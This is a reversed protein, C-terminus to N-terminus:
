LCLGIDERAEGDGDAFVVRCFGQTQGFRTRCDQADPRCYGTCVPLSEGGTNFDLCQSGPGCWAGPPDCQEALERGTDTQLRCAGSGLTLFGCTRGRPCVGEPDGQWMDCLPQCTSTGQESLCYLGSACTTAPDGAGDCPQDQAALGAVFCFGVRNGFQVCTGGNPGQSQCDDDQSCESPVCLSLPEDGANVNLCYSEAACQAPSFPDDCPGLCIPDENANFLACYFDGQAELGSTGSLTCTDNQATCTNFNCLGATLCQGRCCEQAFGACDDNFVCQGDDPTNDQETPSPGPGPNAVDRQEVCGTLAILALLLPAALRLLRARHPDDPAADPQRGHTWTHLMTIPRAM